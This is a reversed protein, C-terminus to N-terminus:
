KPTSKIEIFLLTTFEVFIAPNAVKLRHFWTPYILFSVLETVLHIFREFSRYGVTIWSLMLDIEQVDCMIHWNRDEAIWLRRKKNKFSHKKSKTKLRINM